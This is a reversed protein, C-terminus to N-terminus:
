SVGGFSERPCVWINVKCTRQSKGQITGQCSCRYQHQNDTLKNTELNRITGGQVECFGFM